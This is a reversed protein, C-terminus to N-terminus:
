CRTHDDHDALPYPRQSECGHQRRRGDRPTLYELFEIGPGSGARMGTIRLHAGFVDTLHEYEDGFVEVDSIKQFTLASYFDTARDMDSVTMGVAAVGKVQAEANFAFGRLTLILVLQVIYLHRNM